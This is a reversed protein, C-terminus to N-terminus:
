TKCVTHDSKKITALRILLFHFRVIVKTQVEWTLILNSCIKRHKQGIKEEETFNRNETKMWKKYNVKGTIQACETYIRFMEQKDFPQWYGEKM